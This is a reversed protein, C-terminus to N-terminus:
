GLFCVPPARLATAASICPTTYSILYPKLRLRLGFDPEDLYLSNLLYTSYFLTAMFTVNDLVDRQANMQRSMLTKLDCDETDKHNNHEAGDAHKEQSHKCFEGIGHNHDEEVIGSHMTMQLCLMGNHHSHPVFSHAMLLINALLICTLALLKKVKM